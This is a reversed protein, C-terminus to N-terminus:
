AHDWLRFSFLLLSYRLPNTKGAADSPMRPSWAPLIPLPSRYLSPAVLCNLFDPLRRRCIAPSFPFHFSGGGVFLGAFIKSEFSMARAFIGYGYEERVTRTVFCPCLGFYGFARYYREAVEGLFYKKSQCIVSEIPSYRNIVKRRPYDSM